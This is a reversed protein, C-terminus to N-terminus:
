VCGGIDVGTCVMTKIMVNTGPKSNDRAMQSVEEGKALEKCLGIIYNAKKSPNLQMPQSYPQQGCSNSCHEAYNTWAKIALLALPKYPVVSGKFPYWKILTSHESFQGEETKRRTWALYMYSITNTRHFEVSMDSSIIVKECPRLYTLSDRVHDTMQFFHDSM